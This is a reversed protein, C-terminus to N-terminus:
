RSEATVCTPDNIIVPGSNPRTTVYVRHGHGDCAMAVNAFQDPMVIVDRKQELKKNVGADGLGKYDQSCAGLGVVGLAIASCIAVKKLKM